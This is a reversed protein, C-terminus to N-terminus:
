EFDAEDSDRDPGRLSIATTVGAGTVGRTSATRVRRVKELRACHRISSCSGIKAHNRQLDPTRPMRTSPLM